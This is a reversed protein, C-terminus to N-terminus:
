SKRDKSPSSSLCKKAVIIPFEFNIDINKLINPLISTGLGM